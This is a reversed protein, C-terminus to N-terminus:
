SEQSDAHTSELPICSYQMEPLYQSSRQAVLHPDWGQRWGLAHTEEPVKRGITQLHCM